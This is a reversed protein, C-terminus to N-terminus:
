QITYVWCSLQRKYKLTDAGITAITKKITSISTAWRSVTVEHGAKLTFEITRTTSDISFPIRESNRYIDKTSVYNAANTLDWGTLSDSVRPLITEKPLSFRITKDTKSKNTAIIANGPGCSMM